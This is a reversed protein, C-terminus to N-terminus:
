LHFPLSLPLSPIRSFFSFFLLASLPFLLVFTALWPFFLMSIFITSIYIHLWFTWISLLTIIHQASGPSCTQIDLPWFSVMVLDRHNDNYRSFPRKASGEIREGRRVRVGNREWPLPSAAQPAFSPSPYCPALEPDTTTTLSAAQGAWGYSWTKTNRGEGKRMKKKELWVGDHEGAM